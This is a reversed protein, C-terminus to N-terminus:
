GNEEDLDLLTYVVEAEIGGFWMPHRLVM